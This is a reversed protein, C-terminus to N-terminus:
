IVVDAAASAELKAAVVETVAWAAVVAALVEEM